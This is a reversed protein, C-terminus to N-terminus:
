VGERFKQVIAAPAAHAVVWRRRWEFRDTRLMPLGGDIVRGTREWHTWCADCAWDEAIPLGRVDVIAVAPRFLGCNPCRYRHGDPALEVTVPDDAELAELLTDPRWM